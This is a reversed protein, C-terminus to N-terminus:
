SLHGRTLAYGGDSHMKGRRYERDGNAHDNSPCRKVLRNNRAKETHPHGTCPAGDNFIMSSVSYVLHFTMDMGCGNVKLGGSPHERFLGTRAILRDLSRPFVQGLSDKAMVYASIRRQMGSRSVHRVTTYVTDGASLLQRLTDVADRQDATKIYSPYTVKRGM